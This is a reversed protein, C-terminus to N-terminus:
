VAFDFGGESGAIEGLGEVGRLDTPLLSDVLELAIRGALLAVAEDKYAYMVKYTGPSGKVSRTKGRTVNHGVMTQLELAVHEVVHGLWTGEEMRRIFGGAFGYSCGHASLGPLLSAIAEPFGRLKDTPFSELLGLDIRIQVMPTLSYLHPGRYVRVDLVRIARAESASLLNKMEAM